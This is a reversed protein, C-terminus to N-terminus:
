ASVLLGNGLTIVCIGTSVEEEAQQVFRSHLKPQPLQGLGRCWFILGNNKDLGPAISYYHDFTSDIGNTHLVKHNHPKNRITTCGALRTLKRGDAERADAQEMPKGGLLTGLPGWKTGPLRQQYPHSGSALMEM